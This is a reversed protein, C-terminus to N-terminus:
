KSALLQFVLGLRNGLPHAILSPWVRGRCHVIIADPLAILFRRVFMAPNWVHWADWLLQTLLIGRVAGLRQTLQRQLYGRFYVEEVMELWSMLVLATLNLGLYARPPAPLPTESWAGLGILWRQVPSWVVQQLFWLEFGFVVSRVTFLAWFGNWDTRDLTLFARWDAPREWRVVLVLVLVIGLGLSWAGGTFGWLFSAESAPLGARTYLVEGAQRLWPAVRLGLAFLTLLGWSVAVKVAFPAQRLREWHRM